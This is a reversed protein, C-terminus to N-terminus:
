NVNEAVWRNFIDSFINCGATFMSENINTLFFVKYLETKIFFQFFHSRATLNNGNIMDCFSCRTRNSYPDYGDLPEDEGEWSKESLLIFRLIKNTLFITFLVSLLFRYHCSDYLLCFFCCRDIM